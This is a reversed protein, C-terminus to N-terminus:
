SGPPISTECRKQRRSLRIFRARPIVVCNTGSRSSFRNGRRRWNKNLASQAIATVALGRNRVMRIVAADGTM